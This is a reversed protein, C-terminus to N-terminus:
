SDNDIVGRINSAKLGGSGDDIIILDHEVDDVNISGSGDDIRVSGGVREVTISGSGDEIEVDGTVDIVTVSGSGDDIVVNDAGEVSLSGSGDDISVDSMVDIIKMSGSGDDVVLALGHPIRVDLDVTPSDSWNWSRDEFFAELRAEDRSKELSLRLSKEIIDLADDEDQDPINITATVLIEHLDEVGTVVLSGGGADIELSSVGDTDLELNRDETYGNWAAHALSATFM